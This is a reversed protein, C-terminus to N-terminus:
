FTLRKVIKTLFELKPQLKKQQLIHDIKALIYTLDFVTLMVGRYMISVCTYTRASVRTLTRALSIIFFLVCDFILLFLKLQQNQIISSCIIVHSISIHCPNPASSSFVPFYKTFIPQLKLSFNQKSHNVYPPFIHCLM